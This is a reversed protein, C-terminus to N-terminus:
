RAGEFGRGENNLTSGLLAAHMALDRSAPSGTETSVLKGEMM